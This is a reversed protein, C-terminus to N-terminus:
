QYVLSGEASLPTPSLSLCLLGMISTTQRVRIMLNGSTLIVVKHQIQLIKRVECGPCAQETLTPDDVRPAAQRTCV